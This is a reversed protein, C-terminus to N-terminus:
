PEELNCFKPNRLKIAFTKGHIIVKTAVSSEVNLKKVRRRKEKKTFNRQIGYSKKPQM